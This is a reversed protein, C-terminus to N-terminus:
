RYGRQRHWVELVLIEQNEDDVEYIARYDGVRLCWRDLTGSLKRSQRPPRPDEALANIAQRIRESQTPPIRRELYREATRSFSIRYSM